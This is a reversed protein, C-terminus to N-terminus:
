RMKNICKTPPKPCKCKSTVGTLCKEIQAISSFIALNSGCVYHSNSINLRPNMCCLIRNIIGPNYM